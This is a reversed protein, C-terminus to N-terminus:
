QAHFARLAVLLALVTAPGLAWLLVVRTLSMKQAHNRAHRVASWLAVALFWCIIGIPIGGRYPMPLTELM